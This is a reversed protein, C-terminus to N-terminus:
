PVTTRGLSPIDHPHFAFRKTIEKITILTSLVVFGVEQVRLISCPMNLEM